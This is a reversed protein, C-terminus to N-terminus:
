VMRIIELTYSSTGLHDHTGAERSLAAFLRSLSYLAFADGSPFSKALLATGDLLKMTPGGFSVVRLCRSKCRYVLRLHAINIDIHRATDDVPEYFQCRQGRGMRLLRAKLVLTAKDFTPNAAFGPFSLRETSTLAVSSVAHPPSVVRLWALRWTEQGHLRDPASSLPPTNTRPALSEKSSTTPAPPPPPKSSTTSAAKYPPRRIATTANPASQGIAHLLMLPHDAHSKPNPSPESAPKELEAM